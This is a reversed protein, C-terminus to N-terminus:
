EIVIEFGTELLTRPAIEPSSATTSEVQRGCVAALDNQFIESIQRKNSTRTKDKSGLLNGLSIESDDVNEEDEDSLFNDSFDSGYDEQFHEKSAFKKAIKNTLAERIKKASNKRRNRSLEHSVELVDKEKEEESVMITSGSDDDIDIVVPSTRSPAPMIIIGDDDEESSESEYFPNTEKVSDNTKIFTPSPTRIKTVEYRSEEEKEEHGDKNEDEGIVESCLGDVIESGGLEKVSFTNKDVSEKVVDSKNEVVEQDESAEYYIQSYLAAEM